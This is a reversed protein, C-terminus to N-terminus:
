DPSACYEGGAKILNDRWYLMQLNNPAAIIEPEIGNKFGAIVPYIHDLHYDRFGRPLKDPNIQDYYECFNQNTLHRVKAKYEVYKDLERETWPVGGTRALSIKERHKKSFKKGLNSKNKPRAQAEKKKESILLAEPFEDLYEEKTINHRTKLHRSDIYLGRKGCIKCTVYDIGELGKYKKLSKAVEHKRKYKATREKASVRGNPYRIKKKCEECVQKEISNTRLLTDLRVSIIEKCVDCIFEVRILSRFGPSGLLSIDVSEGSVKTANLIM